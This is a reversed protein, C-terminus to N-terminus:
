LTVRIDRIIVMNSCQDIKKGRNRKEKAEPKSENRIFEVWDDQAIKLPCNRMREEDTIFRDYYKLRLDNKHRRFAEAMKKMILDKSLPDLEYYKQIVFFTHNISIFVVIVLFYFAFM